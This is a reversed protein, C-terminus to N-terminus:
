MKDTSFNDDGYICKFRDAPDLRIKEAVELNVIVFVDLFWSCWIIYILSNYRKWQLSRICMLSQLVLNLLIIVDCEIVPLTGVSTFNFM